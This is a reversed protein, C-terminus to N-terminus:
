RQPQDSKRKEVVLKLGDPGEKGNLANLAATAASAEAFNAFGYGKCTGDPHVMAKVGKLSIAGFPSFLKYIDVDQADRPLGAVFLAAGEEDKSPLTGAACLSHFYNKMSGGKKGSGKGGDYPGGWWGQDWSPDWGASGGWPDWSGGGWGEKGFGKGGEPAKGYLVGLRKQRAEKSEAYKVTIPETLGQPINGHLNDLIWKAESPNAFRILAATKGSPSTTAIVKYQTINGYPKFIDMLLDENMGPPLDSIYLNDPDPNPGGQGNM